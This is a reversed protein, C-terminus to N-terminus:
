IHILSLSDGDNHFSRNDDEERNSEAYIESAKWANSSKETEIRSQFSEPRPSSNLFSIIEDDLSKSTDLPPNHKKRYRSNNEQYYQNNNITVNNSEDSYENM